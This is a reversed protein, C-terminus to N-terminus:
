KAPARAYVTEVAKAEKGDPLINYATITLHDADKLEFETRWSWPSQAPMMRYRGTVAFGAPTKEGESFLIGANMHFSDFWSVQFKKEGPNWAITEEGTRPKKKMTGEYTHRLLKGGLILEFRGKVESEDALQGPTFWTKCTGQWSGVLSKLIAVDAEEPGAEFRGAAASPRPGVTTGPVFMALAAVVAAGSRRSLRM